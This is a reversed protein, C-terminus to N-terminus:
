VKSRVAKGLLGSPKFLLTLLLFIFVLSNTWETSIFQDSMSRVIGIVLGGLIAGYFNGIGGLIAATFADLGVKYGMQYNIGNNYFAYTVSAIGALAGGILFTISTVREINIGVLRAAIPDQALARMARGLQTKNVLYYLLVTLPITIGFVLIDKAAILIKGDLLNEYGVLAPFDKPSSPSMSIEFLKGPMAGWFLGINIFIFSLGIASVLPALKGLKLIPKYALKYSLLNLLACFIPVTLYLIVVATYNNLDGPQVGILVLVTLAFFAGLMFLDGHAFNILEIIGYVMTYGLAILAIIMGNSLGNILQQICILIFNEM